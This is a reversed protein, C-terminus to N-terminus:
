LGLKEFVHFVLGIDMHGTGIFNYYTGTNQPIEAGTGFVYFRRIETAAETDVKVWMFFEKGQFGLSLIEAGVPLETQNICLGIRYKFVTIM